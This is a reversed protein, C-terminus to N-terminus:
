RQQTVPGEFAEIVSDCLQDATFEAIQTSLDM